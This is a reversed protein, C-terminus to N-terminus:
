LQNAALCLAAFLETYEDTGIIRRGWTRTGFVGDKSKDNVTMPIHAINTM